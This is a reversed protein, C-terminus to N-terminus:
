RNKFLFQGFEMLSDLPGRAMLDLSLNVSREVAEDTKEFNESEDKTWFNLIFLFQAWLADKYKDTVFTRQEVEGTEIGLNVLGQIYVAFAKKFDALPDAGFHLASTALPALKIYNRYPAIVELLTFYFALLRERAVYEAYAPEANLRLLTEEMFGKWVEGEIAAINKYQKQITEKDKGLFKALEYISTPRSKRETVFRLYQAPLGNKDFTTSKKANNDAM